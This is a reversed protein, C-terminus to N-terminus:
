KIKRSAALLSNALAFSIKTVTGLSVTVVLCVGLV